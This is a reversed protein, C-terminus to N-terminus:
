SGEDMANRVRATNGACLIVFNSARQAPRVFNYRKAACRQLFSCRLQPPDACYKFLHGRHAGPGRWPLLRPALQLHGRRRSQVARAIILRALARASERMDPAFQLRGRCCSAAAITTTTHCAALRIPTQNAYDRLLDIPGAIGASTEKRHTQAQGASRKQKEAKSHLSQCCRQMPVRAPKSRRAHLPLPNSCNLFTAQAFIVSGAQVAHLHATSHVVIKRSNRADRHMASGPPMAGGGGVLSVEGPECAPRTSIKGPHMAAPADSMKTAAPYAAPTRM